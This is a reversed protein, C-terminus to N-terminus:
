VIVSVSKLPQAVVLVTVNVDGTARVAVTLLALAEQPTHL